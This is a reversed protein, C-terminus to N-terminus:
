FPASAGGEVNRSQHESSPQVALETDRRATTTETGTTSADTPEGKSRPQTFQLNNFYRDVREDADLSKGKEYAQKFHETATIQSFYKAFAKPPKDSGVFQVFGMDPVFNRKGKVDLEPIFGCFIMWALSTTRGGYKEFIKVIERYQQKNESAMDKLEADWPPRVEGYGNRQRQFQWYDACCEVMQRGLKSWTFAERKRDKKEDELAKRAESLKENLNTTPIQASALAKHDIEGWPMDQESWGQLGDTGTNMRRIYTENFFSLMPGLRSVPTLGDYAAQMDPNIFVELPKMRKEEPNYGTKVAIIGLQSMTKVRKTIRSNSVLYGQSMLSAACMKGGSDGTAWRDSMVEALISVFLYDIKSKERTSVNLAKLLYLTFTHSWNIRQHSPFCALPKYGAKRESDKLHLLEEKM